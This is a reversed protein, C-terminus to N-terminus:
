VVVPLVGLGIALLGLATLWLVHVRRLNNAFPVFMWRLPRLAIMVIMSLVVWWAGFVVSAAGALAVEPIFKFGPGTWADLAREFGHEGIGWGVIPVAPGILESAAFLGCFLVLPPYVLWRRPGLTGDRDSALEYTARALLFAGMLLLVGIGIPVLVIGLMTFGFCLYALRWDEPSVSFRMMVRRWWPLEEVPVWQWPDGLRNLVGRLTQSSVPQEQQELALDVHDRVDREIEDADAVGRVSWRVTKLYREYLEQADITLTTTM